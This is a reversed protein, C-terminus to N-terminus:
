PQKKDLEKAFKPDVPVAPADSVTIEADVTVTQPPLCRDACALVKVPVSIKLKGSKADPRIIVTREWEGVGEVMVVKAGDEIKEIGKPEKLVGVFVAELGAPFKMKNVYSDSKPDPQTTPYTHWGDALEITLKWKVAQGRKATAPEFKAEVKKVVDNFTPNQAASISALAAGFGVAALWRMSTM